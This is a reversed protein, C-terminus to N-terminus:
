RPAGLVEGQPAWSWRPAGLVKGQPEWSRANPYGPGGQPVWPSHLAQDTPPFVCLKRTCCICLGLKGQFLLLFCREGGNIGDGTCLRVPLFPPGSGVANSCQAAGPRLELTLGLFGTGHEVGGEWCWVLVVCANAARRKGGPVM